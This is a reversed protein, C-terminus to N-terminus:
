IGIVAWSLSNGWFLFMHFLVVFNASFCKCITSGACFEGQSASGVNCLLKPVLLAMRRKAIMATPVSCVCEMFHMVFNEM